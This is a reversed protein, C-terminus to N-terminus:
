TSAVTLTISLHCICLVLQGYLVNLTDGLHGDASVMLHHVNIAERSMEVRPLISISPRCKPSPSVMYGVSICSIGQFLSNYNVSFSYVIGNLENYQITPM